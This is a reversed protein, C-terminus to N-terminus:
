TPSSATPWGAIRSRRPRGAGDGSRSRGGIGINVVTPDAQGTHGDVRPGQRRIGGHPRPGRAGRPRRERRRRRDREGGQPKSGRLAVHLPAISPPRTAASCRPPAGRRRQGAGLAPLLRLTEDTVRQKAWDMRLGAAELVYRGRQPDERFFGACRRSAPVPMATPSSSKWEPRDVLRVSPM